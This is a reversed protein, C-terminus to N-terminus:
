GRFPWGRRVRRLWGALPSAPRDLAALIGRMRAAEQRAAPSSGRGTMEAVYLPIERRLLDVEPPSLRLGAVGPGAPGDAAEPGSPAAEPQNRSRGQELVLAEVRDLLGDLRVRAAPEHLRKRRFVLARRLLELDDRTLSDSSRDMAPM